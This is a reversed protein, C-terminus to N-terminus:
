SWIESVWVNGDACFTMLDVLWNDWLCPCFVRLIIQFLHCSYVSGTKSGVGHGQAHFIQLNNLTNYLMSIFHIQNKFCLNFRINSPTSHSGHYPPWIIIQGQCTYLYTLLIARNSIFSIVSGKVKSLKLQMLFIDSFHWKCGPVLIKSTSQFPNLKRTTMCCM